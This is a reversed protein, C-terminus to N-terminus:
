LWYNIYTKFHFFFKKSFSNIVDGICICSMVFTANFYTETKQFFSKVCACLSYLYVHHNEVLVETDATGWGKCLCPGGQHLAPCIHRHFWLLVSVAIYLNVHFFNEETYQLAVFGYHPDQLGPSLWFNLLCASVTYSSGELATAQYRKDCVLAARPAFKLVLLVPVCLPEKQKALLCFQWRKLTM